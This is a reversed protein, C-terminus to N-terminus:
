CGGCCLLLDMEEDCNFVRMGNGLNETLSTVFVPGEGPEFIGVRSGVGVDAVVRDLLLNVGSIVDLGVM